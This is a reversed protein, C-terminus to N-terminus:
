SGVGEQHVFERAIRQRWVEFAPETGDTIPPAPRVDQTVKAAVEPTTGCFVQTALGTHPVMLGAKVRAEAAFASAQAVIGAHRGSRQRFLELEDETVGGAYTAALGAGAYLDERRHEAFGDILDAVYEPDTGGVFWMARGIGQDLARNTYARPGEAPWPFDRDVYQGHVYKDTKFYAQHFGYGDLVLWRLLPDTAASRPWRFRPLRAMAWGIGVYVMYVHDAARGELFREVHRSHGFPMGDLIAFGMGAGEYAFGKFRTPLKELEREADRPERAEVAHAYGALFMAGVTELLEKGAENKVRFGRTEMLTESLNPTLLRRRLARLASM